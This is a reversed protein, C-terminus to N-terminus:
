PSLLGLAQGDDKEGKRTGGGGGGDCGGDSGGAEVVEWLISGEQRHAGFTLVGRTDSVLSSARPTHSLSLYIHFLFVGSARAQRRASRERGTALYSAVKLGEGRGPTSVEGERRPPALLPTHNRGGDQSPPGLKALGRRDRSDTIVGDQISRTDNMNSHWGFYKM